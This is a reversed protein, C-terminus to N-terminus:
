LKQYSSSDNMFNQAVVEQMIKSSPSLLMKHQKKTLNKLNKTLIPKSDKLIQNTEELLNEDFSDEAEDYQIFEDEQNRLYTQNQQTTTMPLQYIM